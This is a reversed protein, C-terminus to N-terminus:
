KAKKRVGKRVVKIGYERWQEPFHIKGDLVLTVSAIPEPHNEHIHVDLKPQAYQVLEHYTPPRSPVGWEAVQEGCYPCLVEVWTKKYRVAFPLGSIPALLDDINVRKM